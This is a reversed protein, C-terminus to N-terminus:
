RKLAAVYRRAKELTAAPSQGPKYLGGGLGFGNAGAQLWDGQSDPTVGGVVILPVDGPLVARIARVVKPSAAEAPFFKLAHAGCELAAFAEGPTFFGPACVMGASVATRIVAANTNPAVILRGGASKVRDVDDSNLVTGAGVLVDSGLARALREISEFPRPSNLPVEVIRIGGDGLAEGIAAAEEPKVGRIIAVLPCIRFYKNFTAKPSM